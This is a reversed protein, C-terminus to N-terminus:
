LLEQNHVAVLAGPNTSRKKESREEAFKEWFTQEQMLVCDQACCCDAAAQLRQVRQVM